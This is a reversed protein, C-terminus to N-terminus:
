PVYVYFSYMTNINGHEVYIKVNYKNPNCQGKDLRMEPSSVETFVLVQFVVRCGIYGAVKRKLSGANRREQVVFVHMYGVNSKQRGM